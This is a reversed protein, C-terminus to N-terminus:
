ADKKKRPVQNAESELNCVLEKKYAARSDKM